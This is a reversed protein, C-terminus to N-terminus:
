AYVGVRAGTEREILRQLNLVGGDPVSKSPNVTQVFVIGCYSDPGAPQFFRGEPVGFRSPLSRLTGALRSVTEDDNGRIIDFRLEPRDFDRPAVVVEP